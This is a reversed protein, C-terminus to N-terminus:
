KITEGRAKILAQLATLREVAKDLHKDLSDLTKKAKAAFDTDWGTGKRSKDPKWELMQGILDFFRAGDPKHADAVNMISVSLGHTEIQADLMQKVSFAFLHVRQSPDLGEREEGKPQGDWFARIQKGREEMSFASAGKSKRKGALPSKRKTGLGLSRLDRAVRIRANKDERPNGTMLGLKKTIQIASHGASHLAIMEPHRRDSRVGGRSAAAAARRAVAKAADRGITPNIEGGAVADDFTKRDSKIARALDYLSMYDSPLVSNHESFVFTDAILEYRVCAPRDVGAIDKAAADWSKGFGNKDREYALHFEGIRKGKEIIAAVKSQDAEREMETAEGIYVRWQEPTRNHGIEPKIAVINSM